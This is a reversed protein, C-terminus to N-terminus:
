WIVTKIEIDYGGKGDSVMCTISQTGNATLNWIVCDGSTLPYYNGSTVAWNYHLVDGFSDNATCCVMWSQNTMGFQIATLLLITPPMNTSPTPTPTSGNPVPTPSVNYVPRAELAALRTSINYADYTALRVKLFTLDAAFTSMNLGELVSLRSELSTVMSTIPSLDVQTIGAIESTIRNSLDILSQDQRGDIIDSANVRDTLMQLPTKPVTKTATTADKKGSCGVLPIIMLCCLLLGILYVKKM